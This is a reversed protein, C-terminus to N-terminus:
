WRRGKVPRRRVVVWAVLAAVGIVAGVVFVILGAL